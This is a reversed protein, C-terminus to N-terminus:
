PGVTDAVDIAFGDDDVKVVYPEHEANEGDLGDFHLELADRVVDSPNDGTVACHAEIRAALEAPLVFIQNPPASSVALRAM